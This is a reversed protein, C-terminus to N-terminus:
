EEIYIEFVLPTYPQIETVITKESEETSYGSTSYNYYSNYPDYYSGYGYDGYGGYGSGYGYGGYGGYGGYMSSYMYYQSMMTNYYEQQDQLAKSLGTAGYGYSSPFVIRSWQGRRLKPIARYFAAIYSEQDTSPKYSLAEFTKSQATYNQNKRRNYFEEYVSEINTDFVFGLPYEATPLFRGIYWIKATSDATLAYEKSYPEIKPFKALLDARPTFNITDFWMGPALTDLEGRGWRDMAHQKVLGEEHTLPNKVVARVTLDQIVIKDSGLPYQGGYGQDNTYTTSGFALFSPIYLKVHSGEVLKIKSGDPKTLQNKLAHYQGPAMGYNESGCYAYEPTYYTYPTFTRQRLAQISDRTAFVNGNVDTATYHLKVWVVTDLGAEATQDGDEGDFFEVWVGNSQRVARIGDNNVYKAIWADLSEQELRTIDEDVRKACSGLTILGAILIAATSFKM